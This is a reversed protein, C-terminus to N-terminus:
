PRWELFNRIVHLGIAQSKEPHFQTGCINDKVVSATFEGGYDCTSLITSTNEPYFAYSHVFYVYPDPLLNKLLPHSSLNQPKSFRINNWGMHPIKLNDRAPLPKVDGAIWNLGKHIGHEHGHTALLQMGVCIGFFPKGKKLVSETLAEIMGSLSSLGKMCDDFAGQGPLVLRDAKAIDEARNSLLVSANPIDAAVKAFAKTASRVNGAGYDIICIKM